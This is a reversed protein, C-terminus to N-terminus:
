AVFFGKFVIVAEVWVQRRWKSLEEHSMEQKTRFKKNGSQLEEMLSSNINLREVEIFERQSELLSLFKGLDHYASKCSIKCRLYTYEGSVVPSYSEISEIKVGTKAAQQTVASVLWDTKAFPASRSRYTQIERRFNGISDVLHNIQQQKKIEIQLSSIKAKGPKYILNFAIIFTLLAIIGIILFKKGKIQTLKAININIDGLKINDIM